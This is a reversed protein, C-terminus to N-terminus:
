AAASKKVLIAAADTVKHGYVMRGQVASAGIYKGSGDLSQVHPLVSWENVRTAYLPHGFVAEVNAGLNTSQYVNFGAIAGIAGTQKIQDSLNSAAIFEQSKLLLAYVDPNVIAYRQNDLPVGAKTQATMADVFAEYITNKALATTTGFATGGSVLEAAGDADLTNALAYGAESLRDAIVGDPIASAEYNDIIENVAIDKSIPVNIWESAGSTLAAGTTKNYAAVTAAGSKRVTVAGAKPSGEYRNNFIVGDKLALAIRLKADVLNSYRVSIDM